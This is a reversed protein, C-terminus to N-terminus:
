QPPHSFYEGLIDSINVSTHEHLITFFDAETSIKGAMQFAYDQLFAIFAADGMRDRIAQLFRAGRLYVANAYTRFDVGHYIDTDVWGSPEYSDVRFSQWATVEPYNKEYFFKESYTALAEDLWPEMAQDNGVSGYWWQHATEHVGIDILNNLVTGDSGTYYDRSLFFLGDYEMGDFYPSEVMSLSSYPYPGFLASYTGVAKAVEEVAAAAQVKEPEFYYGIVPIGNETVSVTRYLPSASFAFTRAHSLHYHWSGAAAQVPAGAAFMVPTTLDALHLTVEFDSADYVLHEGVEALPHLLWGNKYPVIFPYWDVLNMQFDNFGFLHYVDAPPLALDFHMLINIEAEPVLPSALPVDLRDAALTYNNVMEGYVMLGGLAFCNKWLNPEVALVIDPLNQGTLNKYTVVEDVSLTHTSYDLTAELTYHPQASNDIPNPPLTPTPGISPVATPIPPLDTPPSFPTKTAAANPNTTVTPGVVPTTFAPSLDICSTLLLSVPILLFIAFRRVM